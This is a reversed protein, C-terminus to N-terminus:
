SDERRFGERIGPKLGGGSLSEMVGSSTQWALFNEPIAQKIM